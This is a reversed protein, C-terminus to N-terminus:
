MTTVPKGVETSRTPWHHRSSIWPPQVTGHHSDFMVLEKMAKLEELSLRGTGKACPKESCTGPGCVLWTNTPILLKAGNHDTAWQRRILTNTIRSEYVKVDEVYYRFTMVPYEGESFDVSVCPGHLREGKYCTKIIECPNCVNSTYRETYRRDGLHYFNFEDDVCGCESSGCDFREVFIGHPIWNRLYGRKECRAYNEVVDMCKKSTSMFSLLDRVTFGAFIITWTDDAM